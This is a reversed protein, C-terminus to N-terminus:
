MINNATLIIRFSVTGGVSSDSTYVVAGTSRDSYFNLPVFVEAFDGVNNLKRTFYFLTDSAGSDPLTHLEVVSDGVTTAATIREVRIFLYNLYTRSTVGGTISLRQTTTHPALTANYHQNIADLFRFHGIREITM